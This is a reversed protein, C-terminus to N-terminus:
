YLGERDPMADHIRKIAKAVKGNKSEMNNYISQLDSKEIAFRILASRVADDFTVGFYKMADQIDIITRYSVQGSTYEMKDCANNWDELGRVLSEDGNAVDMAVEHDWKMLIFYFRDRTSADLQRATNYDNTAGTGSTNATAIITCQPNQRILGRIPTDTYKNGLASNLKILTSEESRDLEDILIIGPQDYGKTFNSKVENGTADAYGTLEHPQQPSTIAYPEKGFVKKSLELVMRTKGIGKPGVLMINKARDPHEVNFKIINLCLEWIAPPKYGETVPMDEPPIVTEQSANNQEITEGNEEMNEGDINNTGSNDGSTNHEPTDDDAEYDEPDYNVDIDGPTDDWGDDDGDDDDDEEEAHNHEEEENPIINATWDPEVPEGTPSPPTNSHTAFANNINFPFTFDEPGTSQIPTPTPMPTPSPSPSPTPNPTGGNGGGTAANGAATPASGAGTTSPMNHNNIYANVIFKADKDLTHWDKCIHGVSYLMADKLITEVYDAQYGFEIFKKKVADILKMCSAFNRVRSRDTVKLNGENIAKNLAQYIATYDTM